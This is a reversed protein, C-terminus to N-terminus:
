DANIQAMQPGVWGDEGCSGTTRTRLVPVTGFGALGSVDDDEAFDFPVFLFLDGAPKDRRLWLESFLDACFFFHQRSYLGFARGRECKSQQKIEIKRRQDSSERRRRLAAPTEM